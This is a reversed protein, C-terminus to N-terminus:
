DEKKKPILPYSEPFLTHWLLYGVDKNNITGDGNFDADGVIPYQEPFLTHWLLYEVDKNNVQEDQDLDGPIFVRIFQATYVADGQCPTIEKDWGDFAYGAGLSDPALPDAPVSVADGYHCTDMSIVAGDSYQFTITYDRYTSTYMATYTVDGVCDVVTPKDWGVFTYTYMDDAARTREAPVFVADGYRYSSTSIVTDDWDKFTVTYNIYEPKYTATYIADGACDVVTKDWGNFSYTYIKDAAKTPTAPAIVKDGYHYTKTSLVTGDWKKFTITYIPTNGCITCTGDEFNHFQKTAEILSTNTFTSGFNIADWQAQTGCFIVTTLNYCGSFAGDGISTVSNPITISTM